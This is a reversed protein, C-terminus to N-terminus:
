SIKGTIGLILQNAPVLMYQFGLNTLQQKIRKFDQLMRREDKQGGEESGHFRFWVPKGWGMKGAQQTREFM